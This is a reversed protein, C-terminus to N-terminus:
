VYVVGCTSLVNRLKKTIRLGEGWFSMRGLTEMGQRHNLGLLAKVADQFCLARDDEGTVVVVVREDYECKDASLSYLCAQTQLALRLVLRRGQSRPTEM